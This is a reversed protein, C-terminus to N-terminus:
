QVEEADEASYAMGKVQNVVSKGKSVLSTVDDLIDLIGTKLNKRRGQGDEPALLLGIVAGAVAAAALGM